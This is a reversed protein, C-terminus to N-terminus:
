GHARAGKCTTGRLVIGSKGENHDEGSIYESMGADAEVLALRV